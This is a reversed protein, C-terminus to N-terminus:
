APRAGVSEDPAAGRIRIRTTSTTLARGRGTGGLALTTGPRSSSGDDTPGSSGLGFVPDIAARGTPTVSKRRTRDVARPLGHLYRRHPLDDGTTARRRRPGGCVRPIKASTLISSGAFTRAAAPGFSMSCMPSTKLRHPATLGSALKLEILEYRFPHPLAGKSRSRRPDPVVCAKAPTGPFIGPSSCTSRVHEGYRAVRAAKSSRSM